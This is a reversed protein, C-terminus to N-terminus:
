AGAAAAVLLGGLMFCTIAGALAAPPPAPMRRRWAATQEPTHGYAQHTIAHGKGRQLLSRNLPYAAAYAIALALMMSWWFTADTLGANMAGPIVLVTLNDVIEMVAISLTDSALVVGAVAGAGLGAKLLPLSSLSYGFVFALAISVVVTGFNSLGTAAGIILGIIEGIACGTLCHLTASAAMRNLASGAGHHGRDPHTDTGSHTHSSM